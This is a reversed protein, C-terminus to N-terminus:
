KLSYSALEIHDMEGGSLPLDEKAYWGIDNSFWIHDASGPSDEIGNTWSKRVYAIKIASHMQGALSIDETGLYTYEEAKKYRDGGL